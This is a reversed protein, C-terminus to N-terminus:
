KSDPIPKAESKSQSDSPQDKLIFLFQRLERRQREVKEAETKDLQKYQDFENQAKAEKGSRKYALGLRYHAESGEPNAAIAKQYAAVAEPFQERAYELNGLQVYAADLKPDIASAKEFLSQARRLAEPNESSRNQKWLAVGYYYNALANGPQNRAFRALKQEACRLTAATGEQMKGLFLYPAPNTPELDAAQCLRQAAEDVSGSTFMAAGLGSLMRASEPHLRVGKSFVDIAPAAARHLLLESGWAFYNQESPDLRAAREYEHVAELPDDLKEDLDGLVRHFDAEDAKALGTESALMQHTRDRAQSLQGSRELALLLAIANAHDRPNAKYANELLPISDQNRSVSTEVSEGAKLNLTDRALAEGTRLRTEAAHGGPGSSDTIGAVTFNPKDDMQIQNAFSEASSTSASATLPQLVFECHRKEAPSLKLSQETASQFGDRQLRVAYIGAPIEFRFAGAPDTTTQAANPREEQQLSVSVGSIPKGTADRVLGEIRAIATTSTEQGSTRAAHFTVGLGILLLFCPVTRSSSQV